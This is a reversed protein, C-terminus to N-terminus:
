EKRNGSQWVEMIGQNILQQYLALVDQLASDADIEYEMALQRSVEDVGANGDSKLLIDRATTNLETLTLDKLNLILAGDDFCEMVVNPSLQYFQGEM